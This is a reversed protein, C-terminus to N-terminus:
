LRASLLLSTYHQKQTQIKVSFPSYFYLPRSTITCTNQYYDQISPKWFIKWITWSGCQILVVASTVLIMILSSVRKSLQSFLPKTTCKYIWNNLITQIFKQQIKSDLVYITSWLWRRLSVLLPYYLNKSKWYKKKPSHPLLVPRKNGSINEIDVELLLCQIYHTNCVFCHQKQSQRNTCCYIQWVHITSLTEAVDPDKFVPSAIVSVSRSFVKM